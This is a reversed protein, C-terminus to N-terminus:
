PVYNDRIQQADHYTLIRNTQPPQHNNEHEWMCSQDHNPGGYNSGNEEAHRLGWVHGLEQCAIRQREQWTFYYNDNASTDNNYVLVQIQCVDTINDDVTCQTWARAAVNIYGVDKVRLNLAPDNATTEIGQIYDPCYQCSPVYQPDINQQVMARTDGALQTALTGDLDLYYHVIGDPARCQPGWNSALAPQTGAVLAFSLALAATRVTDRIPHECTGNARAQSPREHHRRGSGYAGGRFTLLPHVFM